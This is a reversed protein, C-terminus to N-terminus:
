RAQGYLRAGTWRGLIHKRSVRLVLFGRYFKLQDLLCYSLKEGDAEKHALAEYNDVSDFVSLSSLDLRPERLCDQWKEKEQKM